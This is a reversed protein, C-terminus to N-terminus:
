GLVRDGPKLNDLLYVNVDERGKEGYYVSAKKEEQKGEAEKWGTRELEDLEVWVGKGLTDFSKGIGRVRIDDVIIPKDLVFGFEQKYQALFASQFDTTESPKLTM